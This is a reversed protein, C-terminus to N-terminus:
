LWTSSAWRSGPSAIATLASATQYMDARIEDETLIELTLDGIGLGIQGARQTVVPDAFQSTLQKDATETRTVENDPGASQVSVRSPLILPTPIEDLGHESQGFRPSLNPDNIVLTTSRRRGHCQGTRDHGQDIALRRTNKM